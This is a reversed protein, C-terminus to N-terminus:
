AATEIATAVFQARLQYGEPTLHIGDGAQMEPHAAIVPRWDIVRLKAWRPEAAVLADDMGDYGARAITVWIVRRGAAVAMVEDIRSSFAAPDPPDNTGLAVVVTGGIESVRDVLNGIGIPTARGVQADLTAEWGADSLLTTLMPSMGVTLSDGEVFVRRDLAPMGAPLPTAGLGSRVGLVPAATMAVPASGCAGIVATSVALSVLHRTLTTM